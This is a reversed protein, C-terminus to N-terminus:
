SGSTLYSVGTATTPTLTEKWIPVGRYTDSTQTLAVTVHAPVNNYIFLSADALLNTTPVGKYSKINAADFSLILGNSVVNPGGSMTSM